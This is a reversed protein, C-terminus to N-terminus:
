HWNAGVKVGEEIANGWVVELLRINPYLPVIKRAFEVKNYSLLPKLSTM